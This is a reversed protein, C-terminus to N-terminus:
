EIEVDVVKEKAEEKKPLEIKLIGKEFKAKIKNTDVIDPLMFSREFKGYSREIVRYNRDKKEHETKKEGSITLVNGEVKVKVDKKDLGPLEIDLNISNDTEYVDVAPIFDTELLEERGLSRFTEDFIRDITRQIDRFPRFLDDYDRRRRELLM